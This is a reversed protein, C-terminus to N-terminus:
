CTTGFTALLNALDQLDVDGDGDLDGDEYMAGTAAGFNSLLNALDQLGIALDGDLDGPCDSELLYLGAATAAIHRGAATRVLGYVWQVGMGLSHEAWRGGGDSTSYPGRATGILVHQPSQPNVAIGAVPEYQRLPLGNKIQTWAGGANATKYVGQDRTGAFMTTPTLPDIALSYVQAFGGSVDTWTAGGTESRAVPVGSGGLYVVGGPAIAFAYAHLDGIAAVPIHEWSDGGDISRIVLTSSNQTLRLDGAYVVQPNSPDIAIAGNIEGFDLGDAVVAWNLGGNSSRLVDDNAIDLAFVTEGSVALARVDRGAIAGGLPSWAYGGDTTKYVQNDGAAYAVNGNTPHAAAAYFSAVHGVPIWPVQPTAAVEMSEGGEDSNEVSTVIFYVTRGNALGEVIANPATIGAIRRGGDLGSYNSKTIGPEEAAYINYSTAGLIPDWRLTVSRSGATAELKMPPPPQDADNPAGGALRFVEADAGGDAAVGRWVIWGDSLWPTLSSIAPTICVSELDGNRWCRLAGSQGAWFAQGRQLQLANEVASSVDAPGSLQLGNALSVQLNVGSADGFLWAVHRGDTAPAFHGQTAPVDPSIRVPAPNPLNSDYLYIHQVGSLTKQYALRGAALRPATEAIQGSDIIQVASGDYFHLKPTGSADDFVWAAKGGSTTVRSAGPVAADGTLNTAVGTVPNVRFVHRVANGNSFAQLVMFVEGDAIALAEPNLPQGPDIPNTAAVQVPAGGDSRWVWAFDTGRRWVGITQNATAGSGLGIVVNDAADLAGRPQVVTTVAGDDFYVDDGDTWLVCGRSTSSCRPSWQDPTTNSTLQDAAGVALPTEVTLGGFTASVTAAACAVGSQSEALFCNDSHGAAIFVSPPVSVVNPDSSQLLVIAGGAAAPANLTVCGLSAGGATVASPSLTLTEVRIPNVTLISSISPSQGSPPRVTILANVPSAVSATNVTKTTSVAGPSFSVISGTQFYIPPYPGEISCLWNAPAPRNITITAVASYGGALPNPNLVLGSLVPPRVTIVAQLSVGGETATITVTTPANIPFTTITFNASDRFRPVTVSAPVSAVTPRSSMLTVTRYRSFPDSDLTVTGTASDTGYVSAPSIVLDIVDADAGLPAFILGFCIMWFRGDLVGRLM